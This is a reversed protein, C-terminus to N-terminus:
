LRNVADVVKPIYRNDLYLSHLSEEGKIEQLEADIGKEKLDEVAKKAAEPSAVGDGESHIVVARDMLPIVGEDQMQRLAKLDKDAWNSAGLQVRVDGLLNAQVDRMFRVISENEIKEDSNDDQRVFRGPDHIPLTNVVSINGLRKRRRSSVSATGEFYPSMLLLSAKPFVGNRLKLRGEGSLYAAGLLGVGGSMSGGSLILKAGPHDAYEQNVISQAYSAAVAVDRSIGFGRDFRGDSEGRELDTWQQTTLVVDHGAKNLEDTLAYLHSPEEHYGPSILVVRGSPEGIPRFRQMLLKRPAIEEGDVSGSAEIVEETVEQPTRGLRHLDIAKRARFLDVEAIDENSLNSIPGSMQETVRVFNEICRLAQQKNFGFDLTMRAKEYLTSTFPKEPAVGAPLLENDWLGDENGGFVKLDMLEYMLAQTQSGSLEELNLETKPLEECGDLPRQELQVVP